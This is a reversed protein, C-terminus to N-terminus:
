VEFHPGRSKFAGLQFFVKGRMEAGKGGYRAMCAKMVQEADTYNSAIRVRVRVSSLCGPRLFFTSRVSRSSSSFEFQSGEGKEAHRVLPIEFQVRASSSSPEMTFSNEFQNHSYELVTRSSNM